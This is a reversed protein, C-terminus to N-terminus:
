VSLLPLHRGQKWSLRWPWMKKDETLQHSSQATEVDDADNRRFVKVEDAGDDAASSMATFEAPYGLLLRIIIIPLSFSLWPRCGVSGEPENSGHYWLSLHYQQQYDRDPWSLDWFSIPLRCKETKRKKLSALRSVIMCSYYLWSSLHDSYHLLSHTKKMARRHPLFARRSLSIPLLCMISSTSWWTLFDDIAPFLDRACIPLLIFSPIFYTPLVSRFTLMPHLSFLPRSPFCSSRHGNLHVTYLLPRTNYSGGLAGVEIFGLHVARVLLEGNVETRRAKQGKAFGTMVRNGM